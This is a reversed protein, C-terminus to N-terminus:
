PREQRVRNPLEDTDDAPRALGRAVLADAFEEIVRVLAPAARRHGIGAAVADAWAQWPEPGTGAAVGIDPLVRCRREFLSVYILLGTRQRTSSVEAGAFARIAARQVMEGLRGAGILWRRLGRFVFGAALGAVGGALPPLLAAAPGVATWAGALWWRGAAIGLAAVLGLLLGRLAAEPYSDSDPAVWM